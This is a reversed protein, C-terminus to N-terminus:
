EHPLRAKEIGYGGCLMEEVALAPVVVVTGVAQELWSSRHGDCMGPGAGGAWWGLVGARRLVGEERLCDACAIALSSPYAAGARWGKCHEVVQGWGRVQGVVCPGDQPDAWGRGRRSVPVGDEFFPGAHFAHIGCCCELSPAGDCQECRSRFVSRAQWVTNPVVPSELWCAWPRADLWRLRWFRWGIM